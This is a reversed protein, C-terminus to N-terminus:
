YSVKWVDRKSWTNTLVQAKEGYEKMKLLGDGYIVDPDHYNFENALSELFWTGKQSNAHHSLPPSYVAIGLINPVIMITIGSYGSKAPLCVRFAWEGSFTSMGSAQMHSLVNKVADPNQFCREGTSPQLGGNALSGALTAHEEITLDINCAMTYFELLSNMDANM